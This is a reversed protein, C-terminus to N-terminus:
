SVWLVKFIVGLIMTSCERMRLGQLRGSPRFTDAALWALLRGVLSNSRFDAFTKALSHHVNQIM